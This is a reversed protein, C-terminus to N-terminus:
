GGTATAGRVAAKLADYATEVPHGAGQGM